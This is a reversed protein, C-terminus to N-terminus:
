NITTMNNDNINPISYVLINEDNIIKCSSYTSVIFNSEPRELKYAMMLCDNKKTYEIYNSIREPLEPSLVRKWLVSKEGLIIIKNWKSYKNSNILTIKESGSNLYRLGEEFEIKMESHLQTFYNIPYFLAKISPIIKYADDILEKFNKIEITTKQTTKIIQTILAKNEAASIVRGARGMGFIPVNDSLIVHPIQINKYIYFFDSKSNINNQIDEIYIAENLRDIKRSEYYENYIEDLIFKMKDEASKGTWNQNM